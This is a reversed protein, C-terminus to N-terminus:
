PLERLILLNPEITAKCSPALNAEFLEQKKGWVFTFMMEESGDNRTKYIGTCIIRRKQDFFTTLGTNIKYKTTVFPFSYEVVSLAPSITVQKPVHENVAIFRLRPRPPTHYPPADPRWPPPPILRGDTLEVFIYGLEAIHIIKKEILPTELLEERTIPLKIKQEFNM